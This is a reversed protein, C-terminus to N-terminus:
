RKERLGFQEMIMQEHTKINGSFNYWNLYRQFCYYACELSVNFCNAVDIYDECKLAYILPSPALVYSAYADAIKKALDSEQFHGMDIHGIEHMLTFRIRAIPKGPDYAIIYTRREPDYCSYGDSSEDAGCEGLVCSLGEVSKIIWGKQQIIKFPDIPTSTISCEIYLALAKHEIDTYIRQPLKINVLENNDM